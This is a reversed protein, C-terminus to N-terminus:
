TISTAIDLKALALEKGHAASMFLSLFASGYESIAVSLGTPNAALNLGVCVKCFDTQSLTCYMPSRVMIKKGLYTRADEENVVLKSGEKIVVNTAILRKFNTENVYTTIGLKTGCDDSTVNINSSARLLWKVSVGGLETQAGRNFSGARLSNNMDPIADVEWGETLSNKILKVETTNEELGVEAGHMLFLKKRVIKRSKNSLLFNEGEDGKLWASDYAVLQADIKAITSAENLHGKNELLLKEKFEKIGPPPLLTKETLAWVCIQTLGSLFFMADAFVVYEDVYIDTDNRQSPDTPTDKLKALIIDEVKSVKVEGFQYEIRNGFPFVITIWNVLLSGYTVTANQKLNPIDEPTIDLTNKIKYLPEGPLADEILSLELNKEPDCYFHGTPLSVLRYPYSDKKYEDINERTICFASFCWALKSYCKAKMAAIYLKEKNV